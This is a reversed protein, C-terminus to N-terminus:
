SLLQGSFHSHARYIQSISRSRPEVYDGAALEWVLAFGITISYNSSSTNAYPQVDTVTYQSGNVTLVVGTIFGGYAYCNFTFLYKGAVPATFRGNSTNYCSSTNHRATNFVIVQNATYSTEGVTSTAYFSPQYPITVIGTSSIRMKEDATTMASADTSARTYFTLNGTGWDSGVLCGIGARARGSSAGIPTFNLMLVNGSALTSAGGITLGTSGLSSTDSTVGVSLTSIPSTTGIGVNGASTIRMRETLANGVAGTAKNAFIINAGYNSDTAYISAQAPNAAAETDTMSPSLNIGVQTSSGQNSVINQLVNGASSQYLMLKGTPSTTGIGVNGSFSSTGVNTISFLAVTNSNNVVRFNGSNTLKFDNNTANTLESQDAGGSLIVKNATISGTVLMSGTFTQTNSSANGFVNSGSSYLVSSTITQVVLTQATLTNAVTFANAYSATIANTANSASLANSASTANLAYSSSLVPSSGSLQGSTNITALTTSGSVFSVNGSTDVKIVNGLFGTDRTKSM